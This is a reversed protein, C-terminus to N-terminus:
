EILKVPTVDIMSRRRIEEQIVAIRQKAGEPPLISAKVAVSADMKLTQAPKGHKRDLWKDIANMRSQIDAKVNANMVIPKLATEALTDLMAQATEEDSMLANLGCQCAMRQVLGILEANSLSELSALESPTPPSASKAVVANQKKPNHSEKAMNLYYDNM